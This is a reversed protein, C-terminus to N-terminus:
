LGDGKFNRIDRLALTTLSPLVALESYVAPLPARLSSIDLTELAPLDSISRIGNITIRHCRALSLSELKRLQAVHALGKDTIQNCGTLDLSTLDTSTCVAALETDTLETGKESLIAQADQAGLADQATTPRCQWALIVLLLCIPGMVPQRSTCCPLTDTMEVAPTPAELKAIKVIM